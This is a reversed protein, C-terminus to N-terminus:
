GKLIPCQEWTFALLVEYERIVEALIAANTKPESEKSGKAEDRQTAAM